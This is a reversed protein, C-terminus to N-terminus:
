QNEKRDSWDGGWRTTFRDVTAASLEQEGTRHPLHDPANAPSSWLHRALPVTAAAVVAATTLLVIVDGAGHQDILTAALLILALGAIVCAIGRHFQGAESHPWPDVERSIERGHSSTTCTSKVPCSNCVAPKARYRMVRNAPDFSTPWLWQDEPCKWADHDAHYTFQGTRWRLARASTRRAMSDFGWAVAVLLIAYGAVLWATVSPPSM